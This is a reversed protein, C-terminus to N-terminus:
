IIFLKKPLCFFHICYIKLIVILNKLNLDQVLSSCLLREPASKLKIWCREHNQGVIKKWNVVNRVVEIEASNKNSKTQVEQLFSRFTKTKNILVYRIM